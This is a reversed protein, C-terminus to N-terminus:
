FPQEMTTLLLVALNWQTYVVYLAAPMSFTTLAPRTLIQFKINMKPRSLYAAASRAPHLFYMQLTDQMTMRPVPPFLEDSIIAIVNEQQQQYYLVKWDNVTIKGMRVTCGFHRCFRTTRGADQIDEPKSFHEVVFADKWRTCYFVYIRVVMAISKMHKFKVFYLSNNM